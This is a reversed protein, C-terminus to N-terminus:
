EMRNLSDEVFVEIGSMYSEAQSAVLDAGAEFKAPISM